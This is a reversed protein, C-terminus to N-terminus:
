LQSRTRWMRAAITQTPPATISPACAVRTTRAPSWSSTARKRFLRRTIPGITSGCALDARSVFHQPTVDVSRCLLAFRASTEADSAYSQSVNTKLVPGKGLVPLLAQPEVAHIVFAAFTFLLLVKVVALLAIPLRWYIRGRGDPLRM